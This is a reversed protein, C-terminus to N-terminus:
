KATEKETLKIETRPTDSYLKRVTLATVQSDDGYAMGNLADLVCKALNDTDPKTICGVTGAEMDARRKKTTSKPIPFYATIEATIEGELRAAGANKWCERVWNEYIVTDDPTYTQVCKGARRFRPRGKGVPQGPVTFCIEM